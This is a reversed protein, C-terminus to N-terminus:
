ALHSGDEKSPEHKHQGLHDLAAWILLPILTKSKRVITVRTSKWSKGKSNALIRIYKREACFEERLASTLHVNGNLVNLACECIATVLSKDAVKLLSLRPEPKLQVLAKLLELNIHVCRSM